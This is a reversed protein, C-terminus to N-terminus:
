SGNEFILKQLYSASIVTKFVQNEFHKAPM